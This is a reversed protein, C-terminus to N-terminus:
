KIIEGKDNRAMTGFVFDWLNTSVGYAVYPNKYHHVIHQKWLRRLPPFKPIKLVHQAYHFSIYANYGLMFGPWFAYALKGMILWFLGFFGSSLILAPVPPMALRTPDKPYRHHISHGSNQINYLWDYETETHYVFRHVLYEVLSWTLYGAFGTILITHAPLTTETFAYYLMAAPLVIWMTQPIWIPTRTLKELLPNKFLANGRIEKQVALHSPIGGRGEKFARYEEVNKKM